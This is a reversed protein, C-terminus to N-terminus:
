RSFTVAASTLAFPGAGCAAVTRGDVTVKAGGESLRLLITGGNRNSNAHAFFDRELGYFNEFCYVQEDRIDSFRRNVLGSDRPEFIYAAGRLGPVSTGMSFEGLQSTFMNPGLYLNPAESFQQQVPAFWRGQATGPMDSYFLGCKPEETRRVTLTFDIFLDIIKAREDAALYELPCATYCMGYINQDRGSSGCWRDPNAFASRGTALRYDRVGMDLGGVGGLTDGTTGIQEGAKVTVRVPFQCFKENGTGQPVCSQAKLAAVLGPHTLSRVHHFYGVLGDCVVFTLTYDTYDTKRAITDYHRLAINDFVMDGPAFIPSEIDNPNADNKVYFYMHPTPFVHDPPVLSGIPNLNRINEVRVPSVSLPTAGCPPAKATAPPQPTRTATPVPTATPPRTATPLPTDTPVRTSTPALTVTPPRTATAAIAPTGLPEGIPTALITASPLRTSTAAPSAEPVSGSSCAVALGLLVAM